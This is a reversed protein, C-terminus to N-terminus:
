WYAKNAWIFFGILVILVLFLVMVASLGIYWWIAPFAVVIAIATLIFQAKKGPDDNLM